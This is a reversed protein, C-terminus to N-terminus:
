YEYQYYDDEIKEFRTTRGNYKRCFGTRRINGIDDKYWISGVCYFETGDPKSPIEIIFCNNEGSNLIIPIDKDFTRNIEWQSVGQPLPDAYTPAIYIGGLIQYITAPTDGTNTFTIQIGIKEGNKLTTDGTFRFGRTVIKPRHTAIFEERSLQLTKDGSRWLLITVLGIFITALATILGNHIDVFKVFCISDIHIVGYQDEPEETANKTEYKCECEQYSPLNKVM